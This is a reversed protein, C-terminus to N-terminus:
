RTNLSADSRKLKKVAYELLKAQGLKIPLKQFYLFRLIGFDVGNQGSNNFEVRSRLENMM